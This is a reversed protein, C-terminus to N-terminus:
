LKQFRLSLQVQKESYAEPMGAGRKLILL